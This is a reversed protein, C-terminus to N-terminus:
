RANGTLDILPCYKEKWGKYAERIPEPIKMALSIGRERCVIFTAIYAILGIIVFGVYAELLPEM